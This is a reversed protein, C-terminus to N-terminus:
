IIKRGAEKTQPASKNPSIKASIGPGDLGRIAKMWAPPRGRRRQTSAMKELVRIAEVISSHEARLEAIMKAIDM